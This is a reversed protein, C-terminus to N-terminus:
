GSEMLPKGFQIVRGVEEYGLALHAALSTSNGLDADSGMEQCGHDVAWREASAVLKGGVGQRRLDEDVWWGDLYGVPSTSCGDVYPRLSVELFGGATGDDRVAIFTVKEPRSGDYEAMEQLHENRTPEAWLLVRMRLWEAHDKLEVPCITIM